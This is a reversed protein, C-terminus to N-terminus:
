IKSLRGIEPLLVSIKTQTRQVIFLRSQRNTACIRILIEIRKKKGEIRACIFTYEYTIQHFWKEKKTWFPFEKGM